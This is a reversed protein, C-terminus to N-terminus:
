YHTMLTMILGHSNIGSNGEDRVGAHSIHRGRYGLGISHCDDYFYRMGAEFEDFFNFGQNGQEMTDVNLFGPGAGGALYVAFANCFQYDYGLKLTFGGEVNWEPEVLTNWFPEFALTLQGWSCGWGFIHNIDMGVHLFLPIAQYDNFPPDLNGEVYGLGIGLRNMRFWDDDYSNCEEARLASLLLLPILALILTFRRM